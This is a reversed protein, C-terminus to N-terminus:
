QLGLEDVALLAEAPALGRGGGFWTSPKLQVTGACNGGLEGANEAIWCAGLSTLRRAPRCRPAREDPEVDADDQSQRGAGRGSASRGPLWQHGRRETARRPRQGGGWASSCAPGRWGVQPIVGGGGGGGVGGGGGGGGGGGLGGGGGVGLFVWLGGAEDGRPFM